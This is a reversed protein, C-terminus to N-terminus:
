KKSIITFDDTIIFEYPYSFEVKITATELGDVKDTARFTCIVDLPLSLDEEKNPELLAWGDNKPEFDLANCWINEADPVIKNALVKMEELKIPVLKGSPRGIHDITFELTFLEGKVAFNEQIMRGDEETERGIPPKFSVAVPGVTPDSQRFATPPKTITSGDVIPIFAERSGNYTYNLSYSVLHTGPQVAPLELVIRRRDLSKLNNDGDENDFICKVSSNEGSDARGLQAGCEKLEPKGFGPWDFFNVTLNVSKDGKNVVWFSIASKSGVVPEKNSITKFEVQIIDNSYEILPEGDSPRIGDQLMPLIFVAGIVVIILLIIIAAAAGKGMINIKM